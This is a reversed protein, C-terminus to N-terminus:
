SKKLWTEKEPDYLELGLVIREKRTYEEMQEYCKRIHVIDLQEDIYDQFIGRSEPRTVTIKHGQLDFWEQSAIKM